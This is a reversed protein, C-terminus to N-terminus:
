EVIFNEVDIDDNEVIFDKENVGIKKVEDIDGCVLPHWQPLPINQYMLRYACTSPLWDYIAVKDPTLKICEPVIEFRNKYDACRKNKLDYNKCVVCTTAISDDDLIVRHLCCLGCGDCLAEWEQENLENLKKTKWFNKAIRNM